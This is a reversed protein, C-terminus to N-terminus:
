DDMMLKQKKSKTQKKLFDMPVTAVGLNAATDGKTIIFSRLSLIGQTLISISM